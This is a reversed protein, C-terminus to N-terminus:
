VSVANDCPNVVQTSGDEGRRPEPHHAQGEVKSLATLTDFPRVVMEILVTIKRVRKGPLSAIINSFQQRAETFGPIVTGMSGLAENGAVVFNRADWSTDLESMGRQIMNALALGATGCRVRAAEGEVAGAGEEAGRKNKNAIPLLSLVIMSVTRELFPTRMRKVSSLHSCM